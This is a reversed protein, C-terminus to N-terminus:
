NCRLCSVWRATNTVEQPPDKKSGGDELSNWSSLGTETPTSGSPCSYGGTTPNVFDPSGSDSCGYNSPNCTTRKYSGQVLCNRDLACRQTSSNYTGGMASCTEVLTKNEGCFRVTRGTTILAPVNFYYLYRQPRANPTAGKTQLEVQIRISSKRLTEGGINATPLTNQNDVTALVSNVRFEKFEAGARTIQNGDFRHGTLQIPTGTATTLEANNTPSALFTRGRLDTGACPAVSNIFQNLSSAFQAKGIQTDARKTSQVVNQSLSMVALGALGVLGLTVTIEALSFGLQNSIKTKLM